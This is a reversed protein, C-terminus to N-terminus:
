VKYAVLRRKGICEGVFFWCAVETAVLTNLWAERVTLHRWKATTASYMLNGIGRVIQPIDGPMPPTLEVLAYKRFTELRPKAYETAAKILQPAKNALKSM